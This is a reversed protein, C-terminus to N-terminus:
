AFHRHDVLCKGLPEEFVLVWDSLVEPDAFDFIGGPKLDDPKGIVDPIHRVVVLM